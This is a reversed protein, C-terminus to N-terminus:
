IFGCKRWWLALYAKKEMVKFSRFFYLFDYLLCLLESVNVYRVKENFLNVPLVCQVTYRHLNGGMRRVHFDCMTVYPFRMSGKYNPDQLAM